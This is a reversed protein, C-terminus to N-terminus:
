DRLAEQVIPDNNPNYPPLGHDIRDQRKQRREERFAPVKKDAAAKARANREIEAPSIGLLPAFLKTVGPDGTTPTNVIQEADESDMLVPKTRVARVTIVYIDSDLTDLEPSPYPGHPLVGSGYLTGQRTKIVIAGKPNVKWGERTGREFWRMGHYRFAKEISGQSTGRPLFFYFDKLDGDDMSHWLAIQPHSVAPFPDREVIRNPQSLKRRRAGSM